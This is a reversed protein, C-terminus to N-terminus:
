KDIEVPLSDLMTLNERYLRLTAVKIGTLTYFSVISDIPINLIQGQVFTWMVMALPVDNIVLLGLVLYLVWVSTLSNM